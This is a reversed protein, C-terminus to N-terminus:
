KNIWDRYTVPLLRTYFKEIMECDIDAKCSHLRAGTKETLTHYRTDHKDNLRAIVHEIAVKGSRQPQQNTVQM